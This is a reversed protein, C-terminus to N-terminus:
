SLPSPPKASRARQGCAGAVGARVVGTNARDAKPWGSGAEGQVWAKGGGVGVKVLRTGKRSFPDGTFGAQM